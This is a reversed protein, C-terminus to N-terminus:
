LFMTTDPPLGLLCRGVTLYNTGRGQTQQSATLADRMRREFPNGLFIATAGAARYAETAIEVGENIGYTTALKLSARQEYSLPNGDAVSQYIEGVTQHLYARLSRQRAELISYQTQFVPSELLSSPAGRPTKTQALKNLENLQGRALGLM